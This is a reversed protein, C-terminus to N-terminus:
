FTLRLAFQILRPDRVRSVQGFQAGDTINGDPNFFQTHNFANFLETRFELNTGERLSVTKHVGLDLDAIAPGCCLTRPANGIQGLSADTFANPDFFYGGSKQPTLRHFPAILDPEGVSEYDMSNMLERDDDSTIRIPFGSQLTLISSLAWGNVLYRSWNVLNSSPIQWYGSFVFRQRADFLSLSRSKAPDLPDISEEFSSANDFSRSWTYSALFQLGHSFRKNLLAQLSNYSSTAIPNTSFLSAFVPVGDPPCGAGTTPECYPSSYPRLGVLTIPGANPGTVSPVSGYPLHLTVGPPIADAPISFSSDAQFPGCSMGPIRNLDLCPQALGYNQDSSATLRHGQSGVYGFQLLTDHPLARQVTLHYHESYQSRLAAPLDGYLTIPRYESFDVPSGPKPDLFGRFANPIVDGNQGLFPTNFFGNSMGNSGGFPPQAASNGGYMLEENSDYFMGWGLRISLRGPGGSLPSLRGSSWDPSWALGLRPAFSRLYSRTLGASVGPDGPVVLGLPFVSRAAGTPSCDSSGFSSTLPDSASLVCPYIHTAQGPRFTQVRKGADAQPTNWEWRLGYDLVLNQRIRWSDQAFLDFQMSRVDVANASGELFSDPLGLLYNPILSAFGVDNPGGGYFSFNGNLDYFYLQSLRQDRWNFGFKLTHSGAVRSYTDLAQYINGTQSFNGSSNNGFSFGGSLSVFPVGEYQAGFGPTIGLDPDSPDSFCQASPVTVCSDQVLNTRTPSLLQKQGNRYYVARLENVTKATITWVHSLNLQQFRERTLDGFGPLNAGSALFRDFPENDYSDDVYYYANFQQQGTLNHDLRFTGQDNRVRAEPISRYINGAADPQPVFQNLLDDATPDFCQVPIANNPFISSYATGAAIAAGGNASVAAACGSRSNLAAAVTSNQLIGTFVPGASFDGLREQATPVIVQDSSIGQIERRGEYSAFFFAKDRRLPGGLTGGFQNQKFDPTSSDFYGKANLVNNRFFEYLSGHFSGGGSKTIVNLVSGSNRGSSADYNHSLVRFESISDPSPEISPFNVMQDGSAGGNVNYDNSRARGGSVSVVGPQDGGFFLDAGLASQVGPQLQLLEFTDRSKLPLRTVEGEGMVVGLQANETDVLADGSGGARPKQGLVIELRVAQGISARVDKESFTAYGDAKVDVDYSGVPLSPFALQGADDSSAARMLSTDRATIMVFASVVPHHSPDLVRGRVEATSQGWLPLTSILVCLALSSHPHTRCM